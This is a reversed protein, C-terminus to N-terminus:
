SLVISLIKQALKITKRAGRKHPNVECLDFSINPHRSIIELFPKVENFKLGNKAPIGTAPAETKDMCDIDFSVYLYKFQNVFERVEDNRRTFCSLLRNAKFFQKEGPDLDLNGIYFLNKTPIKIPILAEIEPIDFSDFLARMHMGHFNKTPSTKELNIDGHSDFYIIGLDNISHTREMVALIAPLTVSHDGGVVVQTESSAIKDNILNRFKKINNALVKNFDKDIGEPKPFDFEDVCVLHSRAFSSLFESTLIADPGNEVGFNFEEQHIPKNALGIRSKAKFFHVKKM